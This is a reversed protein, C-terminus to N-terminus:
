QKIVMKNADETFDRVVFVIKKQQKGILRESVKAIAEIIEIHEGEYRGIENMFLNILIVDALALCFLSVQKEM